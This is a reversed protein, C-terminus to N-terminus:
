GIFVVVELHASKWLTLMTRPSLVTEVHQLMVELVLYPFLGPYLVFFLFTYM